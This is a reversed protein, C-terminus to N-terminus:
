SSVGVTISVQGLENSFSYLVYVTPTVWEILVDDGNQSQRFAPIQELFITLIAEPSNSSQFSPLLPHSILDTKTKHEYNELATNFISVYNSQSASASPETSMIAQPSPVSLQYHHTFSSRQVSLHSETLGSAIKRVSRATYVAGSSCRSEGSGRPGGEPMEVNGARRVRGILKRIQIESYNQSEVVQATCYGLKSPSITELPNKVTKCQLVRSWM